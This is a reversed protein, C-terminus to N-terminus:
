LRPTLCLILLNIALRVNASLDNSSTKHTFYTGASCNQPRIDTCQIAQMQVHTSNQTTYFNSNTTQNESHGKVTYENTSLLKLVMKGRVTPLM